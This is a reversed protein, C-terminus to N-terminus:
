RTGLITRAKAAIAQETSAYTDASADLGGSVHQYVSGIGFFTRAGQGAAGTLASALGLHGASDAMGSLAAIAGAAIAQCRELLEGVEQSGAQLKAPNVSFGQSMSM